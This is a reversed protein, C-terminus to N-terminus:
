PIPSAAATANTQRLATKISLAIAEALKPPVANAIQRYASSRPGCFVFHPPFGQVTALERATMRRENSPHHIVVVGGRDDGRATVTPAPSNPDVFRHGLYGNFRLKYRSYTHNPFATGIDSQPDPLFALAEGVTVWPSKDLLRLAPDSHTPEPPFAIDLQIDRRIGLLFVRHRKQPVGYDAANLLARKVRYGASEFDETIARIAEGGAISLLGRVNEALFLIPKKDAILRVMERYLLNRRDNQDRGWNAVSFGQCPFGGIIVDCEPISAADVERIDTTTIHDGINLRYTEVADADVDNAWVIQFGAELFGLDFGGAGSFLSVVRM